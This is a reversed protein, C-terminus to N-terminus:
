RNVLTALALDLGIHKPIHLATITVPNALVSLLLEIIAGIPRRPNTFVLRTALIPTYELEM